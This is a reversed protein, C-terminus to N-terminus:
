SQRHDYLYLALCIAAGTAIGIVTGLSAQGLRAGVLAGAMVTFAIIVGGARSAKANKQEMLAVHWAKRSQALARATGRRAPITFEGDM